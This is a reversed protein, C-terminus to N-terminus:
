KKRIKTEIQYFEQNIEKLKKYWNNLLLMLIFIDIVILIFLIKLYIGLAWLLNIYLNRTTDNVGFASIFLLVIGIVILIPLLIDWLSFHIKPKENEANMLRLLLEIKDGQKLKKFALGEEKNFRVM